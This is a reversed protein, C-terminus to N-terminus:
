YGTWPSSSGFVAEAEGGGNSEYRKIRSEAPAFSQVAVRANVGDSIADVQDDHAARPFSLLESELDSLWPANRPFYVLGQEFSPTAALARSYKDKDRKLERVPLGKRKADQVLALQFGTSEIFAVRSSHRVMERRIAPVIDPGEMRERVLGLLIRRCEGLAGIAAFTAIVTYDAEDRISAALDVTTYVSAQSLDIRLDGAKIKEPDSGERDWYRFWARQFVGGGAPQPRCQYMASWWHPGVERRIKALATEDFREPWLAAGPPRGLADGEDEALAPLSLVEWDEKGDRSLLRGVLDDAHWRTMVLVIWAGPELRTVAVSRFWDWNRERMLESNAEEDDKVPDDIILGHLRKGTIAGGVGAAYLCGTHGKVRWWNQRNVEPDVAHGFVQPALDRFITRAQHSWSTAFQAEYSAVMLRKDPFCGLHWVPFALSTM